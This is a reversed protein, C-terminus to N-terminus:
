YVIKFSFESILQELRNFTKTHVKSLRELPKHDTHLTFHRGKLYVRFKEVGFVAAALELLYASYNAEHKQLARSAYGIARPVGKDDIQVLSAGLGGPSDESGLAADVM